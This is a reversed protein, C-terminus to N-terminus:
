GLRKNAAKMVLGTAREIREQKQKDTMPRAASSFSSLVEEVFGEAENLVGIIEAVEEKFTPHQLRYARAEDQLKIITAMLENPSKILYLRYDHDNKLRELDWQLTADVTESFAHAYRDRERNHTDHQRIREQDRANLIIRHNEVLFILEDASLKEAKHIEALKVATMGMLRQVDVTGATQIRTVDVNKRYDFDGLRVDRDAGIETMRIPGSQEAKIKAIDHKDIERARADAYLRMAVRIAVASLLLLGLVLGTAHLMTRAYHSPHESSSSSMWDLAFLLFLIGLFIIVVIEALERASKPDIWPNKPPESGEPPTIKYTM